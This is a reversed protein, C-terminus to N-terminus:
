GFGFSSSSIVKFITLWTRFSISLIVYRFFVRLLLWLEWKVGFPLQFSYSLGEVVAKGLAWITNEWITNVMHALNVDLVFITWPRHVSVGLTSTCESFPLPRGCHEKWSDTHRGLFAQAPAQCLWMDGPWCRSYWAEPIVAMDPHM